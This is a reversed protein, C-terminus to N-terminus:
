SALISRLSSLLKEFGEEEFGDVRHFKELQSPMKFPELLYPILFRKGEPMQDQRELAVRIEKQFYSTKETAQKSLCLIVAASSRIQPPIVEAWRDGAQLDTVDMWSDIGSKNLNRHLQKVQDLDERVYSLFVRTPTQSVRPRSEKCAILADHAAVLGLVRKPTPLNKRYAARMFEVALALRFPMGPLPNEVRDGGHIALLNEVFWDLTKAVGLNPAQTQEGAAYITPKWAVLGRALKRWTPFNDWTHSIYGKDWSTVVLDVMLRALDASWHLEGSDAPDMLWFRQDDPRILINRGHLDGHSWCYWPKRDVTEQVDLELSKPDRLFNVLIQPDFSDSENSERPSGAFRTALEKLEELALYIKANRARTPFIVEALDNPDPEVVCPERYAARLREVFTRHLLRQLTELKEQSDAEEILEALTVIGKLDATATANWEGDLSSVVEDEKFQIFAWHLSEHISHYRDIEKQLAERSRSVKLLLSKSDTELRIVEADSYRPRLYHVTCALCGEGLFREAFHGLAENGVTETIARLAYFSEGPDLNLKIRPARPRLVRADVLLHLLTQAVKAIEISTRGGTVDQKEIYSCGFTGHLGPHPLRGAKEIIRRSERYRNTETASSIALIACPRRLPLSQSRNRIYEALEPGVPYLAKAQGDLQELIDLVYLDFTAGNDLAEQAERSTGFQTLVLDTFQPEYTDLKLTEDNELYRWARNLVQELVLRDAPDDEFHFVELPRPEPREAM